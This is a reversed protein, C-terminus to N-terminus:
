RQCMDLTDSMYEILAVYHDVALVVMSVWIDIYGLENVAFNALRQVDDAECVDCAIGVVKAQSLKTLSSGVANAIGEKLNEELEKVTAQV